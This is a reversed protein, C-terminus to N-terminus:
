KPSSTPELLAVAAAAAERIELLDGRRSDAQATEALVLDVFGLIVGLHNSLIHMTDADLTTSGHRRPDQEIM